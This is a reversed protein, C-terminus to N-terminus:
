AVLRRGIVFEAAYGLDPSLVKNANTDFRGGGGSRDYKSETRRM